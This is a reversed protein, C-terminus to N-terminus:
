KSEQQRGCGCVTCALLLFRFAPSVNVKGDDDLWADCLHVFGGQFLSRLAYVPDVLDLSFGITFIISVPLFSSQSLSNFEHSLLSLKYFSPCLIKPIFLGQSGM